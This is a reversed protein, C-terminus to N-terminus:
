ITSYIEKFISELKRYSEQFSFKKIIENKGYKSFSDRFEKNKIIKIAKEAFDDIANYKVVYGTKGDIITESPGGKFAVVPTGYIISELPILGFPEDIATYLTISSEQYFYKLKDSEISGYFIIMNSPLKCKSITRKLLRYNSRSIWGGILLVLDPIRQHIINFILILERAGKMHHSLGLAFVIKQNKKLGLHEYLSFNSLISKNIQNINLNPYILISNCDYVEKIRKKIFLSICIIADANKTAVIDYKKYIIRLIKSFYKLLFPASHYYRRDHFLRYPEYCCYIHKYNKPNKLNLCFFNSPFSHSFLINPKLKQIVKQYKKRINKLFIWHLPNKP